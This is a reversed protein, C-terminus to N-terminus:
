EKCSHEVCDRYLVIESFIDVRDMAELLWPRGGVLLPCLHLLLSAIKNNIDNLVSTTDVAPEGVLRLGLRALVDTQACVGGFPRAGCVVVFIHHIGRPCKEMVRILYVIEYRPMSHNLEDVFEEKTLSLLQQAHETSTTWVLSSLNPTLPLYAIPGARCFRQWAVDNQGSA